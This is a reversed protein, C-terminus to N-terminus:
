FEAKNGVKIEHEKAYGANVELIYQAPQKSGFTKPYTNPQVSHEIHIIKKDKDIWIMDLPILTDKMWFKYDGPNEYVFLMGSNNALYDRCCLGRARENSSDAIEVEIKNGGVIVQQNQSQGVYALLGVVLLLCLTIFLAIQKKPLKM